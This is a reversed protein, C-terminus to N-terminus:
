PKRAIALVKDIRPGDMDLVEFRWSEWETTAGAKPVNGFLHLLMGALTGFAAREDDGPMRGLELLAKVDAVPMGGELLWSGDERRVAWGTGTTDVAADAALTALIDHLTVLGLVEGYEDVVFALRSKKDRLEELLDLGSLGEPVFIPPELHGEVTVDGGKLALALLRKAHVVGLIERLSGRCVPYRAHDTSVVHELNEAIPKAADIWVVESRPVMLSSSPRDDLKLVNRVIQHEQREIAGSQSGEALMAHIEEETVSEAKTQHAGFLRLLLDTSAGFLKVFPRGIAAIATIPRSVIRAVAEPRMQGLRKPTLEGFVVSVYTVILVVLSTSGLSAGRAPVGLATLREALPRALVDEGLIGSLIAISTIGIQIASLFRTPSDALLLAAAAGSDGEAALKTLRPRRATLLAVESMAFLGNVLILGLLLLVDM